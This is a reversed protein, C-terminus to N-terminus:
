PIVPPIQKLDGVFVVFRLNPSKIDQILREFAKFHTRQFMTAEDIIIASAQRILEARQSQMPLTCLADPDSADFPLKFASHATTGGPYNLAAIGTSAACLCILGKSRLHAAVFNLTVTKGAGGPALLFFYQPSTKPGSFFTQPPLELIENAPRNLPWHISLCLRTPMEALLTDVLRRQQASLLPTWKDVFSRQEERDWRVRERGVETTKDDCEPLGVDSLTRGHKRLLHSLHLLAENKAVAMSQGRHRFDETLITESREDWIRAAPTDPEGIIMTAFLHRIGAGTMFSAAEHLAQFYEGDDTCLGRARAAQQFTPHLVGDVTRCEEFSRSPFRGLLMRLFFEESRGNAVWNMRVVLEGRQRPKIHHIKDPHPVSNASARVEEIFVEYYEEFRLPDFLPGAPRDFYRMLQSTAKLSIQEM